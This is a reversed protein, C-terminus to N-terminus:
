IQHRFDPIWIEQRDLFDSVLEHVWGCAEFSPLNPGQRTGKARFEGKAIGPGIKGWALQKIKEFLVENEDQAVLEQTVSIL